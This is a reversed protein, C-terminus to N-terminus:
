RGKGKGGWGGGKGGKGGWGGGTGGPNGWKGWGGKGKGGSGAEDEVAETALLKRILEEYDGRVSGRIAEIGAAMVERPLAPEPPEKAVQTAIAEADSAEGLKGIAWAAAARGNVEHDSTLMQRLRALVKTNGQMKSMGWSSCIRVTVRAHGSHTMAASIVKADLWDLYCATKVTMGLALVSGERGMHERLAPVPDPMDVKEIADLVAVRVLNAKDGLGPLLVSDLASWNGRKGCGEYIGGRTEEDNTTALAQKVTLLASPVDSEGLVAAASKRGEPEPDRIRS